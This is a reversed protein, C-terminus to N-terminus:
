IKQTSATFFLQDINQHVVRDTYDEQQGDGWVHTIIHPNDQPPGSFEVLALPMDCGAGSRRLDLWIGPHESGSAWAVITGLPTVVQM